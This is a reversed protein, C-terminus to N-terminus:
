ALQTGRLADCHRLLFSSDTRLSCRANISCVTDIGSPSRRSIPLPWPRMRLNSPERACRATPTSMSESARWSARASSHAPRCQFNCDACLHYTVFQREGVAFEIGDNKIVDQATCFSRHGCDALRTSEEFWGPSQQYQSLRIGGIDRFQLLSEGDPASCRFQPERRRALNWNFM